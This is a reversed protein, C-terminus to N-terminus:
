LANFCLYLYANDVFKGQTERWLWNNASRQIKGSNIERWDEEATEALRQWRRRENRRALREAKENEKRQKSSEM